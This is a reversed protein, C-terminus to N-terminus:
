LPLVSNYASSPTIPPVTVCTVVTLRTIPQVTVCTVVTLTPKVLYTFMRPM